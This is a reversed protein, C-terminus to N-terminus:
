KRALQKLVQLNKIDDAFEDAGKPTELIKPISKLKADQMFLQFTKTGIKGQGIHEHRDVSSGCDKKSDNMHIVKLNSRGIIADFDKWLKKYTASTNFKYGAAFIHCTDLCVGIHKKQKVHALITALQHFTNGITTGQGAMTELLLTVQKSKAQWLAHNIQTAINLLSKKEDDSQLTGPHLVLFPIGLIECRQLEDVLALVSKQAVITSKSGLNILYSAHAVVVQILSQKQQTKFKAVDDDTIKKSKWQRNSKTFIQICNAGIKEGRLIAVDFGNAISVHAGLLTSKQPM